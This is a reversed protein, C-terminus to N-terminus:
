AGTESGNKRMRPNGYNKWTSNRYRNIGIYLGDPNANGSRKKLKPKGPAPALEIDSSLGSYAQIIVDLAEAYAKKRDFGDREQVILAVFKALDGRKTDDGFDIFWWKGKEVYFVVSPKTEARWPAYLVYKGGHYRYSLGLHALVPEPDLQKIAQFVKRGGEKRLKALEASIGPFTDTAVEGPDRVAEASGRDGTEANRHDRDGPGPSGTVESGDRQSSPTEEEHDVEQEQNQYKARNDRAIKEIIQELEERYKKAREPDPRPPETRRHLLWEVKDQDLDESYLFGKLNLRGTKPHEVVIGRSWQRVVAFGQSELYRILDERSSIQLEGKKAKDLVHSTLRVKLQEPVSRPDLVHSLARPRTDPDIWGHKEELWRRFYYWKKEWGPPYINYSKGTALDVRAAFLHIHYQGKERHLIACYSFRSPDLGAFALREWEDLIERIQDETPKEGPAWRIVFSSYRHKFKLNDAIRAVEDPNGRLIRVEEREIGEHNYRGLLYEVAERASKAPKGEKNKVAGRPILRLIM